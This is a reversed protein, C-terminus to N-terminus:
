WLQALFGVTQLALHAFLTHRPRGPLIEVSGRRDYVSNGM